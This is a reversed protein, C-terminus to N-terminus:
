LWLMFSRQQIVTPASLKPPKAQEFDSDESASATDLDRATDVETGPPLAAANMFHVLSKSVQVLSQRSM